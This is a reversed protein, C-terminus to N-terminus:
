KILKNMDVAVNRLENINAEIEESAAASQGIEDTVTKYKSITNETVGSVEENFKVVNKTETLLTNSATSIDVIDDSFSKLNLIMENLSKNTNNILNNGMKSKETNSTMQHEVVYINNKLDEVIQVVEELSKKTNEALKRIEEAVVAFGNGYKGARAAEISANLALLNTDESIRGILNLIEDVKSSKKELERTSNFTEDISNKIDTIISITDNLSKQNKDTADIFGKIKTESAKAKEAVVENAGLLTDLIHKNKNSKNLIEESENAANNSAGSVEQLSSTQEEIVASLSESSALITNSFESINKFVNAMKKNEDRIRAEKETIEKLLKASFYVIMFIGSLILVIAVIRMSMEALMMRGGPLISPRSVFLVAQCLISLIISSVIMKIDFFLAGLIVFFFITLWMENLNMTFNLFMYHFYTIFLVVLKTIKFARENFKDKKVTARYCKFFILSYVIVLFCLTILSNTTISTNLGFIKLGYFFM